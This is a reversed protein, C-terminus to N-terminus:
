KEGLAARAKECRYWWRWFFSLRSAYLRNWKKWDVTM